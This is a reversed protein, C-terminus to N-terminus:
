KLTFDVHFHDDHVSNVLPTLSKAFYIGADKLKKGNETIFLEDKLEMKLIVKEIKLGKKQAEQNLTLLHLAILDFDIHVEQDEAYKGNEDFEMLYHRLGMDDLETYPTGSKLLPVMFDASLGNQHTRHPYLKGGHEHSCEMVCFHRDPALIEMKAYSALITEKVKEHVFARGSLYSTTDFYHFNNGSFPLLKGNVLSGNSVDGKSLSAGTNESYKAYYAEIEDVNDVTIKQHNSTTQAQCSLFTFLTFAIILTSFKM